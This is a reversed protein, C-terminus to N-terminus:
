DLVQLEELLNSIKELHKQIDEVTEQVAGKYEEKTSVDEVEEVEEVEEDTEKEIIIKGDQISLEVFDGEKIQLQHRFERPIIVKGFDDIKRIVM